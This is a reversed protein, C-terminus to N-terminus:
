QGDTHEKGDWHIVIGLHRDKDELLWRYAKGAELPTIHDTVLYGVKLQRNALAEIVRRGFSQRSPQGGFLPYRSEHAGVLSVSKRHILKYVDLEVLGRTSGLLIVEGGTNVLQLAQTVLTPLGTAEVVTSVGRGETLQQIVKSLNEKGSNIGQLGCADIQALRFDSLDAVFVKRGTELAFLQACLNGVIGAGLVLVAGDTSCSAAVATYAIQAFRTFLMDYINEQKPLPHCMDRSIDVISCDAHTGHHFVMDGVRYETVADGTSVVHGISAYGPKIPYRAWTIEPDNFGVHSKTFLALETGPSILSCCNKVLLEDSALLGIKRELLEIRYADTFVMEKIVVEM